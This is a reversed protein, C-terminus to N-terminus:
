VVEEAVGLFEAIVFAIGSILIAHDHITFASVALMVGAFIRVGSKVMSIYFHKKADPHQM